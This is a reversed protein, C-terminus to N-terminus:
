NVSCSDDFDPSARLFVQTAVSALRCHFVVSYPLNLLAVLPRPHYQLLMSWENLQSFYPRIASRPSTDSQTHLGQSLRSKTTLRQWSIETNHFQEQSIGQFNGGM